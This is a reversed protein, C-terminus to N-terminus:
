LKIWKRPNRFKIKLNIHYWFPPRSRCNCKTTQAWPKSPLEASKLSIFVYRSIAMGPCLISKRIDSFLWTQKKLGTQLFYLTFNMSKNFYFTLMNLITKTLEINIKVLFFIGLNRSFLKKHKFQKKLTWAQYTQKFHILARINSIDLKSCECNIFSYNEKIFSFYIHVFWIMWPWYNKVSWFRKFLNANYLTMM